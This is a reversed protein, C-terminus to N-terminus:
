AERSKRWHEELHDRALRGEEAAVALGHELVDCLLVDLERLAEGRLVGHQGGDQGPVAARSSGVDLGEAPQAAAAVFSSSGEQKKRAAERVM